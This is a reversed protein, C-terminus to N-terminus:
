LLIDHYPGCPTPPPVTDTMHNNSKQFHNTKITAVSKISSNIRLPQQPAPRITRFTTPSAISNFTLPFCLNKEPHPMVSNYTAAADILEENTDDMRFLVIKLDCSIPSIIFSLDEAIDSVINKFAGSVDLTTNTSDPIPTNVPVVAPITMPYQNLPNFVTSRIDFPHSLKTPSAKSTTPATVLAAAPTSTNNKKSTMAVQPLFLYSPLPIISLM